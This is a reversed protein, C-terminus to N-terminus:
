KGLSISGKEPDTFNEENWKISLKKPDSNAVPCVERNMKYYFSITSKSVLSYNTEEISWFERAREAGVGSYSHVSSTM